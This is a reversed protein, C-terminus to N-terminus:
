GIVYDDCLFVNINLSKFYSLGQGMVNGDGFTKLGFLFTVPMNERNVKLTM